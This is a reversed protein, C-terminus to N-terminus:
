HEADVSSRAHLLEVSGDGPSIVTTTQRNEGVTATLTQMAGNRWVAIKVQRGAPTERVLRQFQTTGECRSATSNWCWTAKRSAPRPPPVM